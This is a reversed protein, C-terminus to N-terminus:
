KPTLGLFVWFNHIEKKKKKWDSKEKRLACFRLIKYKIKSYLSSIIPYNYFKWTSCFRFCCPFLLINKGWSKSSFLMLITFDNGKKCQTATFNQILKQKIFISEYAFYFIQWVLDENYAASHSVFTHWEEILSRLKEEEQCLLSGSLDETM